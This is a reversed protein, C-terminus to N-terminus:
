LSREAFTEGAGRVSVESEVERAYREADEYKCGLADRIQRAVEKLVHKDDTWLVVSWPGLARKDKPEGTGCDPLPDKLEKEDLPLSGYESPQPSHQMTDIIFDLCIEVTELIAMILEVPVNSHLGETSSWSPLPPGEEGLPLPPHHECGLNGPNRWATADGCDCATAFSYSQGFLVEHGEHDSAKFCDVCLVCNPDIACTRPRITILIPIM